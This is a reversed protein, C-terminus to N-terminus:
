RTKNVLDILWISHLITSVLYSGLNLWQCISDLIMSDSTIAIKNASLIAQDPNFNVDAQWHWGHEKAIDRVMM